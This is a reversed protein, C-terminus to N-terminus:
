FNGWGEAQKVELESKVARMLELLGRSIMVLEIERQGDETTNWYLEAKSVTKHEAMLEIIKFAKRKQIEALEKMNEKYEVSLERRRIALQQPSIEKNMNNDQM